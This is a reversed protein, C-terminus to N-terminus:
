LFPFKASFNNLVNERKGTREVM